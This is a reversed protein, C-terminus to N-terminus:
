GPEKSRVYVRKFSVSGRRGSLKTKIVLEGTERDLQYRESVKGLDSQRDIELKDAELKTKIRIIRGDITTDASEPRDLRIRRISNGPITMLLLTDSQTIVLRYATVMGFGNMSAGSAGGDPPGEPPSDPM